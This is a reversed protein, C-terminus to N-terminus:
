FRSCRRSSIVLVMGLVAVGLNVKWDIGAAPTGSSCIQAPKLTFFFFPANDNGAGRQLTSRAFACPDNRAILARFASASRRCPGPLYLRIAASQIAVQAHPGFVAEEEATFPSKKALVVVPIGDVDLAGESVVM